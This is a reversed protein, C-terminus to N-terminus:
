ASFETKIDEVTYLKGTNPDRHPINRFFVRALPTWRELYLKHPEVGHALTQKIDAERTTINEVKCRPAFQIMIAGQIADPRTWWVRDVFLPFSSHKNLLSLRSWMVEPVMRQSM